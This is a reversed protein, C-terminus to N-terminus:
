EKIVELSKGDQNFYQNMQKSLQGGSMMAGQSHSVQM